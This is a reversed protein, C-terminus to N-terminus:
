APTGNLRVLFSEGAQFPVDRSQGGFAGYTKRKVPAAAPAVGTQVGDVIIPTPQPPNAPDLGFGVDVSLANPSQVRLRLELADSGTPLTPTLGTSSGAASLVAPAVLQTFLQGVAARGLIEVTIDMEVGKKLQRM